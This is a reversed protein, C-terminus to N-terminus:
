NKKLHSTLLEGSAHDRLIEELRDDDEIFYYIYAFSVDIDCNGGNERHEAVTSQGGPFTFHSIKHKIEEPTDALLITENKSSLSMKSNYSSLKRQVICLYMSM